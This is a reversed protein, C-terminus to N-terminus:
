RGIRAARRRLLQAQEPASSELRHAQALLRRMAEGERVFKGPDLAAAVFAQLEVGLAKLARLAGHDPRYVTSVQFSTM